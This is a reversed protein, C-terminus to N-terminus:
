FLRYDTKVTQIGYDAIGKPLLRQVIRNEFQSFNEM